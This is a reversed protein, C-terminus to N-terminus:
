ISNKATFVLNGFTSSKNFSKESILLYEWTKANLEKCSNIMEIHKLTATQKALVDKNDRDSHRKIEVIYIKDATEILFDPEYTKSDQWVIQFQRPAPRLWKLVESEPKDILEAFEKEPMSDFKYFEHCAKNMNGFVKMGLVNANVQKHLPEVQDKTFKSYNHHLIPTSASLLKSMTQPPVIKFNGDRFIQRYINEAIHKKNYFVKNAVEQENNSNKRIFTITQDILRDIMDGMYTDDIERYTDLQRFIQNHLNSMDSDGDINLKDDANNRLNKVLLKEDTLPYNMNSTDLDFDNFEYTAKGLQITTINPIDITFKIKNELYDATIKTLTEDFKHLDTLAVQGEAQVIKKVQERVAKQIEPKELSEMSVFIKKGDVEIPKDQVQEVVTAVAKVIELEAKHEERKAESRANAIKLEIERIFTQAITNSIINEKEEDIGLGDLTVINEARLISNENNATEILKDFRDHLIVTVRDVFKDGTREGYPLRLGRGLTQELLIDSSIARLPIITFLNCVDWGEKLMNVHIVIETKSDENDLALLKEVNEQKELSSQDSYVIITKDAYYGDYFDNATVTAKVKHAHEIDKCVILVFPNVRKKNNTMYYLEVAQKTARHYKIGDNIKITELQTETLNKPDFNERTAVAPEKVYGHNMAKPLSFEYVVNKFLHHKGGKPYKPTATLEIGLLPNLENLVDMGRDARYHHAEDMIMVLDELNALYDFYSKGIYESLRKIVPVKGGKSESNIKGINFINIVVSEQLSRSLHGVRNYDDGSIILPPQMTFVDIGQFVYKESTPNSFDDKLKEYITLGPAVVLFNKIGFNAYLYAIFAGMLRTKGVGTALAFTISPFEREFDKCTPAFKQIESLLMQRDVEKTLFTIGMIQELIELSKRQPIRLRMLESIVDTSYEPYLANNTM